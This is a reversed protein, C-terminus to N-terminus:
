DAVTGITPAGTVRLWPEPCEVMVGALPVVSLLPTAVKVTFSEV